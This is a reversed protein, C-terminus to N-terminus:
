CLVPEGLAFYTSLWSGFGNILTGVVAGVFEWRLGQVTQRYKQLEPESPVYEAAGGGDFVIPGGNPDLLDARSRFYASVLSVAVLVSGVRAAWDGRGTAVLYVALLFLAAMLFRAAIM